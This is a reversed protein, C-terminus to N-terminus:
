SHRKLETLKEFNFRWMQKGLRNEQFVYGDDHLKDLYSQVTAWRM